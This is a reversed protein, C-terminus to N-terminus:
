SDSGQLGCHVGAALCTKVLDDLSAQQWANFFDAHGSFADGSSLSINQGGQSKLALTMSVRPLHVPFGKPCVGNKDYAVHSMHDATDLDRGNWCDPFRVRWALTQVGTCQPVGATWVGKRGPVPGDNKRCAWGVYAARQPDASTADHNGAVMRFGPPFSVISTVDPYVNRYYITAKVTKVPTGNSLVTPSWYAATDGVRDCTTGGALLSAYTSNANTTTNGFFDHLHSAGPVGPHVIPDDPLRHSFMCSVVFNPQNEQKSATAAVPNLVTASVAAVVVITAILVRHRRRRNQRHV